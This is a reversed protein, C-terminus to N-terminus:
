EPLDFAHQFRQLNDLIGRKQVLSMMRDRLPTPCKARDAARSQEFSWDSLLRAAGLLETETASETGIARLLSDIPYEMLLRRAASEYSPFGSWPGAGSGLWHYLARIRSRADPVGTTLLSRATSIDDGYQGFGDPWLARLCEPMAQRWQEIQQQREIERQEDQERQQQADPIGHEVLWNELRRRDALRADHKWINPWRIAMWYLLSLTSLHEDGAWLELQHDEISLLHGFSDPDEVIRLAERLSALRAPDSIDLRLVDFQFIRNEDVRSAFLKIRTTRSLVSDLAAQTPDPAVSALYDATARDMAGTVRGQADVMPIFLEDSEEAM